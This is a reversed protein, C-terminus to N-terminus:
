HGYTIILVIASKFASINITNSLERKVIVSSYLQCLVANATGITVLGQILRRTRGEVVRLCCGLYKSMAALQLANSSM